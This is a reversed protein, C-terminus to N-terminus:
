IKMWACPRMTLPFRTICRFPTTTAPPTQSSNSCSSQNPNPYLGVLKQGMASIMNSPIQNDPFPLRGAPNSPTPAVSGTTLPNYIPYPWDSFNGTKEQATPVEISQTNGTGASRRGGDYAFFWFTKDHGDYVHPIIVPGGLPGGFQNQKWPLKLPTDTGNIENLQQQLPSRPNFLDNQLFDYAQGHWANTGSKIAINVQGSGQGYEASYLGTQVKVEQVSFETPNSTIGGFFADTDTVGDLVFSTSEPRSGNLSVEAFNNNLGHQAWALQSGGSLNSAGASLELLNTIDRGTSPLDEIMKQDLVNGLTPNDTQVM